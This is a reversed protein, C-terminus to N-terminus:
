LNKNKVARILDHKFQLQQMHYDFPAKHGLKALETLRRELDRDFQHAATWALWEREERSFIANRYYRPLRNTYGHIKTYNRWHTEDNTPRHWKAHTQLYCNGLGPKRSQLAFPPNRDGYDLYRNILYGTVYHISAVGVTGLYHFGIPWITDLKSITIDHLNFIIAHYHPRHFTEGYEGIAFYRISKTTHKENTRRLRKFFKQLVKKELQPKGSPSYDLYDDNYSLTLFHASESVTQEQIIRITWDMRYSILCFNCRGCPVTRARDEADRLTLPKICRM